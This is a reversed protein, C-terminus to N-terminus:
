KKSGGKKGGTSPASVALNSGGEAYVTLNRPLDKTKIIQTVMRILESDSADPFQEKAAKMAERFEANEAKAQRELVSARLDATELERELTEQTKDTFDWHPIFVSKVEYGSLELGTQNVEDCMAQCKPNNKAKKDMKQFGNEGRYGMGQLANETATNILKDLVEYTNVEGTNSMRDFLVVLPRRLMLEAEIVVDILVGKQLEIAPVLFQHVVKALLFWEPKPTSRLIWDETKTDNTIRPNMREHVLKFERIKRWPLGIVYLGLKKQLLGEEIKVSTPELTFNEQDILYGEPPPGILKLPAGDGGVVTAIQNRSMFAILFRIKGFTWIVVAFFLIPVVVPEWGFGAVLLGILLVIVTGVFWKMEGGIKELLLKKSVPLIVLKM